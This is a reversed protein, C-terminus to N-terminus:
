AGKLRLVKRHDGEIVHTITHAKEDQDEPVARMPRHDSGLFIRSWDRLM